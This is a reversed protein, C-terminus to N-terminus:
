TIFYSNVLPNALIDDLTDTGYSTDSVHVRVDATEHTNSTRNWVHIQDILISSNLDIEWRAQYEEETLAFSSGDTFADAAKAAAYTSSNAYTTSQSVPKNM